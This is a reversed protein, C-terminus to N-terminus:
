LQTNRVIVFNDFLWGMGVTGGGSTAETTNNAQNQVTMTLGQAKYAHEFDPSLWAEYAERTLKVTVAVGAMFKPNGATGDACVISNNASTVYRYKITSGENPILTMDFRLETVTSDAFVGALWEASLAFLPYATAGIHLRLQTSDNYEVLSRNCTASTLWLIFDGDSKSGDEFDEGTAYNYGETRFNDFIWAMQSAVAPNESNGPQNYQNQMTAFLVKEITEGAAVKEKWTNYAERTIGVTTFEGAKVETYPLCESTFGRKTAETNGCNDLAIDFKVSAVRSDAFLADLWSTDIIFRPYRQGAATYLRLAKSGNYDVITTTPNTVNQYWRVFGVEDLTVNEFDYSSYYVSVPKVYTRKGVTFTLENNGKQTLLWAKDLSVGSATITLKDQPVAVGNLLVKEVGALAIDYTGTGANDILLADSEMECVARFNDFYVLAATEKGGPKERQNQMVISWGLADGEDPSSKLDKYLERKLRITQTQRSQLQMAFKQPKQGNADKEGIKITFERHTHSATSGEYTMDFSLSTVEPDEFIMDLYEMHILYTPWYNNGAITELSSTGDTAYKNSIRAKGEIKNLNFLHTTIFSPALLDGEFSYTETYVNLTKRVEGNATAISVLNCGTYSEYLTEKSITIATPTIAADVCPEGNITIGTAGEVAITYMGKSTASLYLDDTDQSYRINAVAIAKFSEGNEARVGYTFYHTDMSSIYYKSEDTLPTVTDGVRVSLMFPEWEYYTDVFINLKEYIEEFSVETEYFLDLEEFSHTWMMHPAVVELEHTYVGKYKGDDVTHTITYEGVEEPTWMINDTVDESWDGISLEVTSEGDDVYDIFDEWLIMENVPTQTAVGPLFGTYTNGDNGTEACSFCFATVISLSFGVLLGKLWKKRNM